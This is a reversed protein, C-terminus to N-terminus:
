AQAQEAGQMMVGAVLNIAATWDQHLTENWQDGAVDAMAALLSDRVAGYHAPETGYAVHRAGMEQLAPVVACLDRINDVVAALSQALKMRQEKLDDPFLPRVGPHAAFLHEYFVGTLVTAKSRLAAFSSEIRDISEPSM